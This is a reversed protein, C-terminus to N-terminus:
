LGELPGRWATTTLTYRMFMLTFEEEINKLIM